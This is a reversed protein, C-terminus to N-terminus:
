FSVVFFCDRWALRRRRAVAQFQMVEECPAGSRGVGARRQDALRVEQHLMDVFRRNDSGEVAHSWLRSSHVIFVEDDM